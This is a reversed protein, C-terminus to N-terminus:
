PLTFTVSRKDYIKFPPNVLILRSVKEEKFLTFQKILFAKGRRIGHGTQYGDFVMVQRTVTATVQRTVTATSTQIM